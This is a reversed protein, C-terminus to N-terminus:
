TRAVNSNKHKSATCPLNANCLVDVLALQVDVHAAFVGDADVSLSLVHAVALGAVVSGVAAAVVAVAAQVHRTQLTSALALAQNAAVVAVTALAVVSLMALTLVQQM